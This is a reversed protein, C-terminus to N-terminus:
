LMGLRREASGQDTPTLHHKARRGCTRKALLGCVVILYAQYFLALLYAVHGGLGCREWGAEWTRGSWSGAGPKLTGKVTLPPLDDSTAESSQQTRMEGGGVGRLMM